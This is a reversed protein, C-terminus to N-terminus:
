SYIDTYRVLQAIKALYVHDNLVRSRIHAADLNHSIGEVLARMIFTMTLLANPFANEIIILAHLFPFSATITDRIVQTQERLKM